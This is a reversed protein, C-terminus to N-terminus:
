QRTNYAGGGQPDYNTAPRTGVPRFLATPDNLTVTPSGGGWIAINAPITVSRLTLNNWLDTYSDILLQINYRYNHAAASVNPQNIESAGSPLGKIVYSLNFAAKFTSLSWAKFANANSHALGAKFFYPYATDDYEVGAVQLLGILQNELHQIQIPIGETTSDGDYNNVDAAMRYDEMEGAANTVPVTGNHCAATNCTANNVFQDTESIIKWTHGGITGDTTDVATAMHCGTCNAQQHETVQGYLMGTGVGPTGTTQSYEFGNRGWLMAATGLYHPNFFSQNTTTSDSWLKAKFLTYGSERGQHCFICIVGNGPTPATTPLPTNDWFVNGSFSFSVPTGSTSSYSYKSVIQPARVNNTTNASNGHPDHCTICVVPEDGFVVPAESTGQVDEQYAVSTLGNHCKYCQYNDNPGSTGPVAANATTTARMLLKSGSGGTSSGLGMDYPWISQHGADASTYNLGTNPNVYAVPNASFEAFAPANRDAHGSGKWETYIDNQHTDNRGYKYKGKTHCSACLKEINLENNTGIVGATSAIGTSLNVAGNSQFLVARMWSGAVADNAGNVDVKVKRFIPYPVESAGRQPITVTKAVQHADHCNGCAIEPHPMNNPNPKLLNGAPDYSFKQNSDHCVSCEELHQNKTVPASPSSGSVFEPQGFYTAQDIGTGGQFFYKDPLNDTNAHMTQAWSTGLGGFTEHCGSAGSPACNPAGPIPYPIPGTGYHNGGNGHCDECGVVEYPNTTHLSDMWASPITRTDVPDSVMTIDKTAAHCTNTCSDSGVRAPAAAGATTGAEKSASGCAVLVTTVLLLVCFALLIQIRTRRMM